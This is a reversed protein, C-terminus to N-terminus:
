RRDEQEAAACMFTQKPCSFNQSFNSQLTIISVARKRLDKQEEKLNQLPQRKLGLQHAQKERVRNKIYISLQDPTPIGHAFLAEMEAATLTPSAAAERQQVQMNPSAAAAPQEVQLCSFM